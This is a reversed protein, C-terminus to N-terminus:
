PGGPINQDAVPAGIRELRVENRTLTTRAEALSMLTDREAAISRREVDQLRTIAEEHREFAGALGVDFSEHLVRTLDARRAAILALARKQADDVCSGVRGLCDKRLADSRPIFGAFVGVVAGIASGIGPLIATGIAAGVAAGGLGISVRKKEFATTAGELPAPATGVAQQAQSWDVALPPLLESGLRRALPYHARLEDLALMEITQTVQRLEEDVRKTTRELTEMVGSAIGRDLDAALAVLASRSECAAVAQTWQVRLASLDQSLLADASKLADDVGQEIAAKVREVQRARFQTPDPLRHGELNALRKRHTAEAEDRAAKLAPLCVRLRMAASRATLRPGDACVSRLREGIAAGEETAPLTFLRPVVRALDEIFSVLAPPMPRSPDEVVVFCHAERLVAASVVRRGDEGEPVPVDLVTMGEPLHVAPYEIKLEAVDDGIRALHSLFEERRDQAYRAREATLREITREARAIADDDAVERELAGVREQAARAEEALAEAIRRREQKRADSRAKEDGREPAAPLAAPKRRFFPAFLRAIWLWVAWWPPSALRMAPPRVSQAHVLTTDEPEEASPSREATHRLVREKERAEALRGQREGLEGAAKARDGRAQELRKDFLESKDPVQQSFRVVRRGSRSHAAFDFGSAHKVLTIRSGGKSSASAKLLGAGALAEVVRVRGAQPGVIAVTPRIDAGERVVEEAARLAPELEPLSARTAGAVARLEEAARRLEEVIPDPDV